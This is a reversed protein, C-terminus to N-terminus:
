CLFAVNDESFDCNINESTNQVIYSRLKFGVGRTLMENENFILICTYDSIITCNTQTHKNPQYIIYVKYSMKTNFYLSGM